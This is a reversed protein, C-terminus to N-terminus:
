KRQSTYYLVFVVQGSRVFNPVSRWSLMNFVLICFRGTSFLMSSVEEHYCMLSLFAFDAQQFYIVLFYFHLSTLEILQRYNLPHMNFYFFPSLYAVSAALPHTRIFLQIVFLYFFDDVIVFLVRWRSLPQQWLIAALTLVLIINSGWFYVSLRFWLVIDLWGRWEGIHFEPM